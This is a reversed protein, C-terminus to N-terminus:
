EENEWCFSWPVVTDQAEVEELRAQLRLRPRNSIAIKINWLNHKITPESLLKDEYKHIYIYMYVTYILFIHIHPYIQLYLHSIASHTRPLFKYVM